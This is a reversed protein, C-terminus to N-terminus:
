YSVRVADLEDVDILGLEGSPVGRAVSWREDLLARRDCALVVADFSTGSRPEVTVVLSQTCLQALTDLFASAAEAGSATVPMSCLTFSPHACTASATQMVLNTWCACTAARRVNGDVAFTTLPM